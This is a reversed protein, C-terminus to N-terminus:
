ARLSRCDNVAYKDDLGNGNLHCYERAVGIASGLEDQSLCNANSVTFCSWYRHVLRKLYLTLKLEEREMTFSCPIFGLLVLNSVYVQLVAIM